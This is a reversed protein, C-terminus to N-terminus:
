MAASRRERLRRRRRFERLRRHSSVRRLSRRMFLLVVSRRCLSLHTAAADQAGASSSSPSASPAHNRASTPEHSIQPESLNAAQPPPSRRLARRLFLLVSLLHRLLVFLVRDFAPWAVSVDWLWGCRWTSLRLRLRLFPVRTHSNLACQLLHQVILQLRHLAPWAV